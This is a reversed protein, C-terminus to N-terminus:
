LKQQPARFSASRGVVGAGEQTGGCFRWKQVAPGEDPWDVGTDIGQPTAM